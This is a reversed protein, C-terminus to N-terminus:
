ILVELLLATAFRFGQYFGHREGQSSGAYLIEAIAEREDDAFLNMDDLSQELEEVLAKNAREGVPTELFAYQYIDELRSM